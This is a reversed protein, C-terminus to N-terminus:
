VYALGNVLTPPSGNTTYRISAGSTACTITLDFPDTYFGRDQSFKTDAVFEGFGGTNATGPSPPNFFYPRGDRLGYSIDAKQAPFKPSFETAPSEGEPPYLP